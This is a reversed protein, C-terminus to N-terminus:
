VYADGAGFIGDVSVFHSDITAIILALLLLGDVLSIVMLAKAAITQSYPPDSDSRKAAEVSTIKLGM